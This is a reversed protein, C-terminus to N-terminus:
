LSKLRAIMEATFGDRALKEYDIRGEEKLMKKKTALLLRDTADGIITQDSKGKARKFTVAMVRVIAPIM